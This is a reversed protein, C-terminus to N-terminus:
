SVGIQSMLMSLIGVARADPRRLHTLKSPIKKERAIRDYELRGFKYHHTADSYSKEPEFRARSCRIEAMLGKLMIKIREFIKM